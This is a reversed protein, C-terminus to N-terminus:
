SAVDLYNVDDIPPPTSAAAGWFSRLSLSLPSVPSLSVVSVVLQVMRLGLPDIPWTKVVQTRVSVELQIM